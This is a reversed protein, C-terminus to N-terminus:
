NMRKRAVVVLFGGFRRLGPTSAAWRETFRLVPGLLPLSHVVSVPTLVRIGHVKELQLSAPLYRRISTLSDYRTYVAEDTTSASIPTPPKLRKVVYRLSYPNYFEVILRGGPRLVRTLEALARHIDQVHALVKFSCVVDFSDDAFPISTINAQLVNLQRARARRLMNASLDIGVALGAHPELRSLILGTGCGAELLRDRPGLYRLVIAAEMDDIFAHYGHHREREYWAAFDDYYTQNSKDSM